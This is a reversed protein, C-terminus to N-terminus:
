ITAMTFNNQLFVFFRFLEQIVGVNGIKLSKQASQELRLFFLCVFLRFILWNYDVGPKVM